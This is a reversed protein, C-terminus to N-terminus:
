YRIRCENQNNEREKDRERGKDREGERELEPDSENGNEMVSEIRFFRTKFVTAARKREVTWKINNAYKDFFSSKKKRKM